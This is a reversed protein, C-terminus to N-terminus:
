KWKKHARKKGNVEYCLEKSLWVQQYEWGDQLVARSWNQRFQLWSEQASNAKMEDLFSFFFIKKRSVLQESDQQEGKWGEEM